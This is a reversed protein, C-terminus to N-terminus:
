HIHPGCEDKTKKRRRTTIDKSWEESQFLLIVNQWIFRSM